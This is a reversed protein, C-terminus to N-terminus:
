SEASQNPPPGPAPVRGAGWSRHVYGVVRELEARDVDAPEGGEARDYHFLYLRSAFQEFPLSAEGHREGHAATSVKVEDGWDQGSDNNPNFFYVRMKGRPDLSVRQITIAHWGIFRSM